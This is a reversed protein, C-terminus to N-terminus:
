ISGRFVAAVFIFRDNAPVLNHSSSCPAREAVKSTLSNHYKCYRKTTSIDLCIFLLLCECLNLDFFFYAQPFWVYSLHLSLLFTGGVSCWVDIWLVDEAAPKARLRAWGFGDVQVHTSFTNVIFVTSRSQWPFRERMREREEETWLKKVWSFLFSFFVVAAMAVSLLPLGPGPRDGKRCGSQDLGATHAKNGHPRCLLCNKSRQQPRLAIEATRDPHIQAAPELSIRKKGGSHCM